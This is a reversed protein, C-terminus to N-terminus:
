RPCSRDALAKLKNEMNARTVQYDKLVEVEFSLGKLFGNMDVADNVCESLDGGGTYVNRGCCLAKKM